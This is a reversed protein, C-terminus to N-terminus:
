QKSNSNPMMPKKLIINKRAKWVKFDKLSFAFLGNNEFTTSM